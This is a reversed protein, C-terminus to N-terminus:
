ASTTPSDSEALMQHIAGTLEAPEWRDGKDVGPGRGLVSGHVDLSPGAEYRGPERGFCDAVKGTLIHHNREDAEIDVEDVSCCAYPRAKRQKAHLIRSCDPLEPTASPSSLTQRAPRRKLGDGEDLRWAIRM